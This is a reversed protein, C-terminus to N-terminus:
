RKENLNHNDQNQPVRPRTKAPEWRNLNRSSTMADEGPSHSWHRNTKPGECHQEPRHWERSADPAGALGQPASWPTSHEKRLRPWQPPALSAEWAQAWPQSPPFGRRPGSAPAARCPGPAAPAALPTQLKHHTTETWLRWNRNDRFLSTSVM